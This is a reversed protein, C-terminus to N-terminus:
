INRVEKSSPSRRRRIDTSASDRGPSLKGRGRSEENKQTTRKRPPSYPEDGPHKRDDPPPVGKGTGKSSKPTERNKDAPTKWSGRALFQSGSVSPWRPDSGTSSSRRNDSVPKMGGKSHDSKQSEKPPNSTTWDKNSEDSGQWGKSPDSKQWGKSAVSSQWEKSPEDQKKWGKPPGSM